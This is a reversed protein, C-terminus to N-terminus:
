AKQVGSAFPQMLIIGTTSAVGLFTVFNTSALDAVPCIGGGTASIAYQTGVAVTGGITISGGTQITIPQNLSSGTLAVGFNSAGSGSQIATGAALAKMYKGAASLYASM